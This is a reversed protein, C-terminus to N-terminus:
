SQQIKSKLIEKIKLIKKSASVLEAQCLYYNKIDDIIM